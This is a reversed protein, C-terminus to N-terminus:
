PKPGIEIAGVAIDLYSGRVCPATGGRRLASHKMISDWVEAFNGVM